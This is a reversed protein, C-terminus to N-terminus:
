RVERKAEQFLRDRLLEFEAQEPRVGERTQLVVDQFSGMGGFLRIVDRVATQYADKGRAERIAPALGRPTEPVEDVSELLATLELLTKEIASSRMVAAV